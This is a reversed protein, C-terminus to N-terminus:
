TLTDSQSTAQQALTPLMDIRFPWPFPKSKLSATQFGSQAGIQKGLNKNWLTNPV